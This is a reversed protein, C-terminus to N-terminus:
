PMIGRKNIQPMNKTLYFGSRLKSKKLKDPAKDMNQMAIGNRSNCIEKRIFINYVSQRSM